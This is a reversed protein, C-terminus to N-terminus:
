RDLRAFLLFVYTAFLAFITLAIVKHVWERRVLLGVVSLGIFILHFALNEPRPLRGDLQWERVISWSVAAITIGFAAPAERWYHERLDLPENAPVDPLIIAAVMYILGTGILVVAFDLFSWDPRDALSFSAWWHQVVIFLVLVSWLISLWYFRVRARSLILARYGQLVQQVALGLIISLLVSLYSFADM